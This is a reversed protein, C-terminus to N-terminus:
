RAVQRQYVNFLLIPHINAPVTGVYYTALINRLIAVSSRVTALAEVNTYIDIAEARMGISFSAVSPKMSMM